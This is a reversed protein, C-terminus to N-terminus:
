CVVHLLGNAVAHLRRFTRSFVRITIALGSQAPSVPTRGLHRASHWNAESAKTRFFQLALKPLATRIGVTVYDKVRIPFRIAPVIADADFAFPDHNRVACDYLLGIPGSRSHNPLVVDVAM